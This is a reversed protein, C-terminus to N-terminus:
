PEGEFLEQLQKNEQEGLEKANIAGARQLMQWSSPFLKRNAEGRPV